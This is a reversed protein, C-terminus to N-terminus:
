KKMEELKVIRYDINFEKAYEEVTDPFGAEERTKNVNESNKIPWIVATKDGNKLCGSCGQTGYIQEKGQEMLLRDQMMAFYKFPLENDKAAKEIIPIYKAIKDSHQIVYFVALNSGLGVLTKGPYGYKDIVREIFALNSSDTKTIREQFEWETLKHTLGLVNIISDKKASDQSFILTRYAQDLFYVSDLQTKLRYNINSDQCFIQFPLFLLLILPMKKM